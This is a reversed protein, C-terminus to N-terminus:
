NISSIKESMISHMLELTIIRKEIFRSNLNIRLSLCAKNNGANCQEILNNVYEKFNEDSYSKFSKKIKFKSTGFTNKVEESKKYNSIKSQPYRKEYCKPCYKEGYIEASLILKGCKACKISKPSPSSNIPNSKHRKKKLFRGPAHPNIGMKTFPDDSGM